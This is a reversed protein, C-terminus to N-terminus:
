HESNQLIVELAPEAHTAFLGGNVPIEASAM